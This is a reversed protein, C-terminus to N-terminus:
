KKTKNMKTQNQDPEFSHLRLNSLFTGARVILVNLSFEWVEMRMLKLAIKSYLFFVSFTSIEM